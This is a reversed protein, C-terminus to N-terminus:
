KIAKKTRATKAKVAPKKVATKRKPKAPATPPYGEVKPKDEKTEEAKPGISFLSKFFATWIM